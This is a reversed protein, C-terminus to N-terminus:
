NDFGLECQECRITVKGTSVGKGVKYVSHIGRGHETLKADTPLKVDTTYKNSIDLDFDADDALGINLACVSSSIDISEFRKDVKIIKVDGNKGDFHLTHNLKSIKYNSFASHRVEMNDVTGIKFDDLASDYVTIKKVTGFNYLNSSSNNELYDDHHENVYPEEALKNKGLELNTVRDIKLHSRTASSIVNEAEDFIVNYCFRLNANLNKIKGGYVEGYSIDLDLDGELDGLRLTHNLTSRVNLNATKPIFLKTKMELYDIKYKKGGNLVIRCDDRSFNSNKMFFKVLNMNADIAVAGEKTKLFEIHFDNMLNEGDEQSSTKLVVEVEQRIQGKDWTEIVFEKHIYLREVNGKGKVIYGYKTNSTGSSTTNFKLLLSTPVNTLVTLDKAVEIEKVFTKKFEQSFCNISFLLFFLVVGLGKIATADFKYVLRSMM